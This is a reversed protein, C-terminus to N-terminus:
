GKQSNKLKSLFDYYKQCIVKWAFTREALRRGREGMARWEPRGVGRAQRIAQALGSATPQCVLGCRNERVFQATEDVNTVIVPKGLAIYEAFKTPLAVTTATHYPRPLVLFDAAKLCHILERQSVRDVLEARPGLTEKIKEKWKIHFPTKRFGIFKMKVDLSEGLLRGADVLLDVGQWVQFDGAYCITFPGNRPVGDPKFMQIDVGNRLLLAKEGPIHHALLRNMLPRSVVLHYDSRHITVEELLLAQLLRFAGKLKHRELSLKLRMESSHGHMDHILSAKLRGRFLSFPYAALATGAHIVDYGKLRPLLSIFQLPSLIAPEPWVWDGMYLFDTELGM